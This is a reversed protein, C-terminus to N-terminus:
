SDENEAELESDVVDENSSSEADDVVNSEDDSQRESAPEHYVVSLDFASLCTESGNSCGKLPCPRAAHNIYKIFSATGPGTYVLTLANDVPLVSLLESKEDGAIYVLQGGWLQQWTTVRDSLSNETANQANPQGYGGLHLVCELRWATDMVDSDALLTYYGTRWRRFQPDNLAAMEPDGTAHPSTSIANPACDSDPELRAHKTAPPKVDEVKTDSALASPHLRIGTLDSLIVLMAESRFLRYLERLPEPVADTQTAYKSVESLVDFHKRNFPGCVSWASETVSSLANCAREWEELKLFNVLQIESSKVFRRRIKAQQRMDLYFPNIWCYVLEEEVHIPSVLPVSTPHCRESPRPLPPGHFWGHLSLRDRSGLTEAVQHFSYSSPEFFAFMNRRPPISATIKWPYIPATPKEGIAPVHLQEEPQCSFLELCGGEVSADWDEPVLYWIFAIRRNDLEDDHCLLVDHTSYISSTFDIRDRELTAGTLKELWPLVDSLLFSRLKVLISSKYEVHQEDKLLNIIDVSQKFTFMDNCRPEFPLLRAESEVKDVLEETSKFLQSAFSLDPQFFNEFSACSFPLKLLCCGNKIFPEAVQNVYADKFCGIFASENFAPNIAFLQESGLM